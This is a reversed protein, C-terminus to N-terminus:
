NRTRTGTLENLGDVLPLTDELSHFGLQRLFPVLLYRIQSRSSGGLRNTTDVSIPLAELATFFTVESRTFDLLLRSVRYSGARKAVRALFFSMPSEEFRNFVTPASLAAGV